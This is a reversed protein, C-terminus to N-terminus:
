SERRMQTILAGSLCFIMGLLMLALAIPATGEGGTAPLTQAAQPTSAAAPTATAVVTTTETMQETGTIASTGTDTMQETGTVEETDTVTPTATAEQVAPANEEETELETAFAVMDQENENTAEFVLGFPFYVTVEQATNNQISLTGQGRYPQGGELPTPSSLAQFDESSISVTGDAVAQDLATGEADLPALTENVAQDVLSQAVDRPVVDEGYPWDGEVQHWIALQTQLPDTEAFGEDIAVRLVRRVDESALGRPESLQAPFDKEVELCYTDFTLSATGNAPITVSVEGVETDEQAQAKLGFSGAIFFTAVLMFVTALRFRAM